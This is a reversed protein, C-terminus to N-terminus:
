ISGDGRVFILAVKIKQDFGIRGAVNRLMHSSELDPLRDLDFARFAGHDVGGAQYSM